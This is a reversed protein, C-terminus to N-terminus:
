GAPEAAVGARRARAARRRRGRRRGPRPSRRRQRRRGCRRHRRPPRICRGHDPPATTAPSTTPTAVLTRFPGSIEYTAGAGGAGRQSSVYLRTGSPDFAVGALESGAHSADLRLVQTRAGDAGILILDQEAADDECVYLDGNSAFAVNDPGVVPPEQGPEYLVSMESTRTDYRRIRNDAKTTFVVAGDDYAIGEGGAYTTGGGDDAPIWTVAGTDDTVAVELDGADLRGWTAPIFRYLRGNPADETLFLAASDPDAAVAEHRFGGLAPRVVAADGGEPSCEWVQGDDVEECTLWTGWPTSGGSCNRSTGTCIPYADAITGGADFRIAGVGGRRDDVESNSVYIWGGDPRAFTAGGDPWTHWVYSTGAVAEGARGVERATFGPPLM